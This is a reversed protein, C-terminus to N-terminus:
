MSKHAVTVTTVPSCTIKVTGDSQVMEARTIPIDRETGAAVTVALDGRANGFDDTGPIDVTATVSVGSGNKVTVFSRGNPLFTDGATVTAASFVALLSPLAIIQPAGLAAM